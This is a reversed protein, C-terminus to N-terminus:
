TYGAEVIKMWVIKESRHELAAVVRIVLLGVIRRVLLCFVRRLREDSDRYRGVKLHREKGQLPPARGLKPNSFGKIRGENQKLCGM